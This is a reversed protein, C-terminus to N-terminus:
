NRCGSPLYKGELSGKACTWIISGALTIPSLKLTENQIKNNAKPGKFEVTVTGQTVDVSSVYNGTISTNRALGASENNQPFRGTNSVFDWVAAKAGTSLSIGEAVQARIAYDQYAPIAIAALIAIIAVVIMLEILTFGKTLRQRLM